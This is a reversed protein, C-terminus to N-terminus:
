FSHCCLSIACQPAQGALYRRIYEFPADALEPAIVTVASREVEAFPPRALNRPLQLSPPSAVPSAHYSVRDMMSFHPVPHSAVQLM